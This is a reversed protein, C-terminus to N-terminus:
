FQVYASRFAAELGSVPSHADASETRVGRRVLTESSPERYLAAKVRQTWVNEKLERENESVWCNNWENVSM